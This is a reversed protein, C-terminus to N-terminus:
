AALAGSQGERRPGRECLGKSLSERLVEERHATFASCHTAAKRFHSVNEEVGMTDARESCLTSKSPRSLSPSSTRTTAAATADEVRLVSSPASSGNAGVIAVAVPAAVEGEAAVALLAPRAGAGGEEDEEETAVLRSM